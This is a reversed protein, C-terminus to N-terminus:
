TKTNIHLKPDLKYHSKVYWNNELLEELQPGGSQFWFQEEQIDREVTPTNFIIFFKVGMHIRRPRPLGEFIFDGDKYNSCEDVARNTNPIFGLLKRWKKKYWVLLLPMNKEFAHKNFHYNAFLVLNNFSPHFNNSPTSM